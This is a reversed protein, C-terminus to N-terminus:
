CLVELELPSVGGREPELPKEIESPECNVKRLDIDCQGFDCVWKGVNSSM